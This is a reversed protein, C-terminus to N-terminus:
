QGREVGVVPRMGGDRAIRGVARQEVPRHLADVLQTRDELNEGRCLRDVKANGRRIRHDVGRARHLDAAEADAFEAALVVALLRHRPDDHVAGVAPCPPKRKLDARLTLLLEQFVETKKFWGRELDDFGRAALRQQRLAPLLQAGYGDGIAM